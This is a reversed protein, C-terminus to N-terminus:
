KATFVLWSHCFLICLYTSQDRLRVPRCDRPLSLLNAIYQILTLTRLLLSCFVTVCTALQWSYEHLYTSAKHFLNTLHKAAATESFHQLHPSRLGALNEKVFSDLIEYFTIDVKPSTFILSQPARWLASLFRKVDVRAFTNTEQLQGKRDPSDNQAIFWSIGTFTFINPLSISANHAANEILCVIWKNGFNLFM